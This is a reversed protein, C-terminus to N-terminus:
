RAEVKVARKVIVNGDVLLAVFYTGSALSQTNWEYTHVGASTEEERLTKVPRGDETTVDLKVHADRTTYYSVTTNTSFPNPSILLREQQLNSGQGPTISRQGGDPAMGGGQQACCNNIQQQLQAITAQQQKFGAILLPILGQYNMAEYDLAPEIVSGTTDLAAPRHINTVLNPLVAAVNQAILGFQHEGPLHMYPFLDLNFDYSKPQLASLKAVASDAPIDEINEKLQEDSPTYLSAVYTPGEFYGAWKTHQLYLLATPDYVDPGAAVGHVAYCIDAAVTSHARGSVGTRFATPFGPSGETGGYGRIGINFGAASSSSIGQTGISQSGTGTAGASTGSLGVSYTPSGTGLADFQGGYERSYLGTAGDVQAYVGRTRYTAGSVNINIGYNRDVGGSNNEVDLGYNNTTGGATNIRVGTTNAAVNTQNVEVGEAFNDTTVNLKAAPPTSTLMVGIGVAESNDPCDDVTGGEATYMNNVGAGGGPVIMWDCETGANFVIPDVWKVVGREPSPSAQDDVVMVKYKGEPSPDNPLQRIRVRGNLVDLRETPEEDATTLFSEKYFDGLGIRPVITGSSDAPHLRMLELGEVSTAGFKAIPDAVTTFLFRFNDRGGTLPVPDTFNNESWQAVADTQDAVDDPGANRYKHGVFMQDENGTIMMGNRMWRRLGFQQQAGSEHVLHLRSWPLPNFTGGAFGPAGDMNTANGIAVYGNRIINYNTVDTSSNFDDIVRLGNGDLPDAIADPDTNAAGKHNRLWLSGGQRTQQINFGDNTPGQRCYIHGMQQPTPATGGVVPGSARFMRWHSDYGRAPVLAAGWNGVTRFQEITANAGLYQSHVFLSVNTPPVVPFVGLGVGNIGPTTIGYSAGLVVFQAHVGMVTWIWVLAFITRISIRM